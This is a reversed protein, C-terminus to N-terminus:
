PVVGTPLLLRGTLTLGWEASVPTSSYVIGENATAGQIFLGITPISLFATRKM